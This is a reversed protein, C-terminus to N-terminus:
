SANIAIVIVFAAAVMRPVGSEARNSVRDWLKRTRAEMSGGNPNGYGEFMRLFFGPTFLRGSAWGGCANNRLWIAQRNATHLAPNGMTPQVSQHEGTTRETLRM